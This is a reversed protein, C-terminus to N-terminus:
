GHSGRGHGGHGREYQALLTRLRRRGRYLRSSVTGPQIGLMRAIEQYSLGEVDALYVVRVFDQPTDRLARLLEPDPIRSLVRAEASALSAADDGVVGVMQWDELHPTPSRPPETRKKRYSTIYANTMIRYLWGWLNSGPQFQHFSGYAKAYTEQVLDEADQPHRTMRLAAREMRRHYALAEREFRRTRQEDREDHERGSAPEECPAATTTTM